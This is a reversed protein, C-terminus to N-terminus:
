EVQYSQQPKPKRWMMESRSNVREKAMKDKDKKGMARRLLDAGGLTYGGIIQACQMIQEQYVMIGYTAKLVPELLPHPYEVKEVGHKRNCFSPIYDMPGPRYLANMAILDEIDTPKLERLYKRMGDSEFQFTGVTDGHQYLHWTKPDDLPLKQLDIDVDHGEKILDGADRIISLTKL